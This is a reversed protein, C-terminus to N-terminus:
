TPEYVTKDLQELLGARFTALDPVAGLTILQNAINGVATGELNFSVVPIGARDATAQCLLRNRSGGGVVLMRDFTTGTLREFTKAAAAHGAGLSECILRTYGALSEPADLGRERLQRDIADKMSEPNFLRQDTVDLVDQPPKEEEAAKILADWDADSRPRERFSPLTQELLWLGMINRIPRYRGDGIRENSVGSELAEPGAVSRDSEFGVLSWTGSSLYLDNSGPETPMADFACATDHGPVLVTETEELGDIGTVAGLKRRATVPGDFWKAPIGFFSLADRSYHVGDVELLQTSSANSIENTQAGSLLYNFYDSLMLCRQAIEPLAPYRDLLEWLQLSTNIAQNPIGTWGYARDIGDAALKDVYPLTRPDRYAHPPFVLRGEGDLLVHDVAWTDVGCSTLRPAYEVAKTLAERIHTYLGPVEWYCRGRLEHFRNPFRHAEHLELSSESYSGVIVRGSTAGLDIAATHIKDM